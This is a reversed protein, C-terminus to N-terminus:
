PRCSIGKMDSPRVITRRAQESQRGLFDLLECGGAHDLYSCKLAPIKCLALM